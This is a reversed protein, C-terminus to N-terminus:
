SELEGLKFLAEIGAEFEARHKEPPPPFPAARRIARVVSDDFANDNSSHAIKVGALAGEANIAFHVTTTLDPSGSSFVWAQKIKEQVTRYYLLFELDQQIGASGSGAGIGLGRGVSAVDAPVPGGESPPADSAAEAPSSAPQTKSRELEEKLLKERVKALQQEVSPTPKAQPSPKPKPTPKPTQPKTPEPTPDPTATAEPTPTEAPSPEPSPTPSPSSALVFPENGEAPPPKLAEPKPEADVGKSAQSPPAVHTGLDGAPVDDVLKVTYSPIIGEAPTFYLPALLIAGAFIAAHALASVGIAAAYGRREAREDSSSHVPPPV